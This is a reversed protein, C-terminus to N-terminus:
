QVEGFIGAFTRKLQGMTDDQHQQQQQSNSGSPEKGQKSPQRVPRQQQSAKQGTSSKRSLRDDNNTATEGEFYTNFRQYAFSM